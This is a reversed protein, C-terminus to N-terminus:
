SSSGPSRRRSERVQERDTARDGVLGALRHRHDHQHHRDVQRDAQDGRQHHVDVVAADLHELSSSRAGPWRGGGTRQRWRAADTPQSRRLRNLLRSLETASRPRRRQDQHQGHHDSLQTSVSARHPTMVVLKLSNMIPWYGASSAHRTQSATSATDRHQRPDRGGRRVLRATAFGPSPSTPRGPAARAAPSPRPRRRDHGSKSEERVRSQDPDANASAVLSGIEDRARTSIQITITGM